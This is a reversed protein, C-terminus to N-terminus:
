EAGKEGRRSAIKEWIVGVIKAALFTSCIGIVTGCLVDTPYHVRVYLRSFAIVVALVLAACGWKRDHRLITVAGEFSVAAHGSPFSWNHERPVLLEVAADIEYPRPRATVNKLILNCVIAGLLLALGMEIGMRRTRPFLLLVAAVVIWFWGYDGLRTVTSLVADLFPCGVAAYLDSLWGAEVANWADM